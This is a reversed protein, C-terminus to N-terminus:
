YGLMVFRTTWNSGVVQGLDVEAIRECIHRDAGRSGAARSRDGHSRIIGVQKVVGPLGLNTGHSRITDVQEMAGPLGSRDGHSRVTGIQGLDVEAIRECNHRDAGRSGAVRSRDGHSRIIGVQKVGGPLGLNTVM